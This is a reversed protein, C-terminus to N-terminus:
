FLENVGGWGCGDNDDLGDYGEWGNGEEDEMGVSLVGKGWVGESRWDGEGKYFWGGVGVVWM